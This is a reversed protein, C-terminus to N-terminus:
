VCVICLVVCSFIFYLVSCVNCYSYMLFAQVFNLLLMCFLGYIRVFICFLVLLIPFSTIFSIAMYAAFRIHDTYRRIINLCRTVLVESWEV